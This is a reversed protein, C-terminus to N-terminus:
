KMLEPPEWLNLKVGINNKLANQSCEYGCAVDELSMGGVAYVM